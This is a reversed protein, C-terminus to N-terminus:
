AAAYSIKPHKFYAAVREPKGSLMQMFTETNERLEEKNRPIRKSHVNRKFDNNLYEDPNLDPSYAPLYFLEIHDAHEKVWAKVKKAHHIRLNDLILFIKKPAGKILRELFTIFLDADMNTDYLMFRLKGQNTVTSIMNVKFRKAPHELIPTNGIPAYGTIGSPLSVSATEDGWQIEAEEEKARKAIAPYEEELWATVAADKREYARKIPVQSTFEWRQLYYGVTSVALAIGLEQEILVQVAERTWLAFPFKLQSPTTDMLRQIIQKEQKPDLLTQEGEKRGRQKLRIGAEGERRYTAWIGSTTCPNMELAKAVKKNSMGEQRMKVIRYRLEQQAEPILRRTDRKKEM